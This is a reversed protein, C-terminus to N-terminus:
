VFYSMNLQWHRDASNEHWSYLNYQVALHSPAMTTNTNNGTNSANAARTAQGVYITNVGSLVWANTSGGSGTFQGWGVVDDSTGTNKPTVPLGGITWVTQNYAPIGTPSIWCTVRVYNGVRVYRASDVSMSGASITPSWTGDATTVASVHQTVSGSSIRADPITGSTLNSANLNSLDATAQRLQIYDSDINLLRAADLSGSTIKAASIGNILDAFDRTRSV